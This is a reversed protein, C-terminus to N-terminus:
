RSSGPSTCYEHISQGAIYNPRRAKPSEAEDPGVLRAFQESFKDAHGVTPRPPSEAGPEDLEADSFQRGGRAADITAM